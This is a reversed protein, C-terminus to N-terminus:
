YGEGLLRMEVKGVRGGAKEAEAVAKKRAGARKVELIVKWLLKRDIMLEKLGAISAYTAISMAM